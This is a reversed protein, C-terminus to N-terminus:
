PATGRDDHASQVPEAGGMVDDEIRRRDQVACGSKTSSATHGVTDFIMYILTNFKEVCPM